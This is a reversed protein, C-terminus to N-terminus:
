KILKLVDSIINKAVIWSSIDFILVHDFLESVMGVSRGSFGIKELWHTSRNDIFFFDPTLLTM